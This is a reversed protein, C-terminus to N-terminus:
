KILGALQDFSLPVVCARGGKVAVFDVGGASSKKDNKIKAMIEDVSYPCDLDCGSAAILSRAEEAESQDMLGLKQSVNVSVVMGRAVCEGHSLSYASLSEIAHGVTHGLNLLKRVGAEKEDASVIDRKIKLCELILEESVGASILVSDVAGGLFAYKVVEGMGSNIERLPLTELFDLNIFVGDPQYFTGVLNKGTPLDIATKGGVSSDVMSLLTTPVAILGIGRMYTSAVFAGLDGVVGGGLTLVTDGRTFGNEALACLASYYRDVNKSGEGNPIVIKFVEYGALSRAVVDSYLGDVVDDTFIALKKGTARQCVFDSFGGLGRTVVIDYEKQTKVNLKHM